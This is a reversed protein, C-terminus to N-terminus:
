EGYPMAMRSLTRSTRIAVLRISKSPSFNARRSLSANFPSLRGSTRGSVGEAISNDAFSSGSDPEPKVGGVDGCGKLRCGIVGVRLVDSNCAFRGALPGKEVAMASVNSTPGFPNCAIDGM